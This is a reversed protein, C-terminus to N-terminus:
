SGAWAVATMWRHRSLSDDFVAWSLSDDLVAESVASSFATM